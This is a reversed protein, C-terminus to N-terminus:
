RVELARASLVADFEFAIGKRYLQKLIKEVREALVGQEVASATECVGAAERNQDCNNSAM